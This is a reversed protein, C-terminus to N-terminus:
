LSSSFPKKDLLSLDCTGSRVASEITKATRSGSELEGHHEKSYEQAKVRLKYEAARKLADQYRFLADSCEGSNSTLDFTSLKSFRPTTELIEHFRKNAEVEAADQADLISFALEECDFSHGEMETVTWSGDVRKLEAIEGGGYGGFGNKANWEICARNGSSSVLTEGFRASAPDKLNERVAAEIPSDVWLQSAITLLTATGLLAGAIKAQPPKSQISKWLRNLPENRM